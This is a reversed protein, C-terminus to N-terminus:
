GEVRELEGANWLFLPGLDAEEIEVNQLRKRAILAQDENVDGGIWKRGCM